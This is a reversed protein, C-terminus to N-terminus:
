RLVLVKVINMAGTRRIKLFYEGSAIGAVNMVLNNAGPQLVSSMQRVLQGKVDYLSILAEDGSTSQIFINLSTKAPVPYVLIPGAAVPAISTDVTTTSEATTKPSEVNGANDIAISYFAYKNGNSGPYFASTATTSLWPVFTSDNVSVYIDYRAVGSLNDSGSWNVAFTDKAEKAPLPLVQSTPKVLDFVNVWCATTIPPNADFIITATNCIRDGNQTGAAPNVTFSVFGDGQPFTVDPPLFGALADTTQQNTVPDITFFAWKVIGTTSDFTATVRVKVGYQKTFDFDYLFSRAPSSLVYVSDAITVSNFGFTTYDVYSPNLTDTVIVTQVNANATSENEFGITYTLPVIQTYHSASSDGVGFKSNPDGTKKFIGNWIAKAVPALIKGCSKVPAAFSMGKSGIEVAVRIFRNAPVLSACAKVADFFGLSFDTWDWIKGAAGGEVGSKGVWFKVASSVFSSGSIACNEADTVGVLDAALSWSDTICDAYDDFDLNSQESSEGLPHAGQGLPVPGRGSPAPAIAEPLIHTTTDSLPQGLVIQVTVPTHAPVSDPIQFIVQITGTSGAPINALSFMRFSWNNATDIVTRQLTDEIAALDQYGPISATYFLPRLVEINTGVPLGAILVPVLLADTNGRNGYTITYIQNFGDRIAPDGTMNVWLNPITGTTVTFGKYLTDSKGNPFLAIVDYGGVSQGNLDFIATMLSTSQVVLTDPSLSQGNQQLFLQMGPVFGAGSINVTVQGTNGGQNTTIASLGMITVTKCLTDGAPLCDNRSILCANYIGPSYRELPNRLDSTDGNGFIWHSTSDYQSSNIFSVNSDSVAFTFDSLPGYSSCVLFSRADVLSWHGTSDQVRLNVIHKGMSLGSAIYNFNTDVPNGKLVPVPTNKGAGLDTDIYYEAAVISPIGNTAGPNIYFVHQDAISWNNNQDKVRIFLQHFGTSLTSTPVNLLMNLSDGTTVAFATAKGVGPDTDIFYEAATLPVATATLGSDIFFSKSDTISWNNNQDKVRIFLQNFGKTLGTLSISFSVDIASDPTITIAKGNGIGPDTNIFYEAATLSQGLGKSGCCLVIALLLVAYKTKKM